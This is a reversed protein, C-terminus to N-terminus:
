VRVAKPNPTVAIKLSGGEPSRALNLASSIEDFPFIHTVFERWPYSDNLLIERTLSNLEISASYSGIIQKEAMGIQGGDVELTQGMRTHAFLVLTGGPRLALLSDNIVGESDTAAIVADPGLPTAVEQLKSVWKEGPGFVDRAGYRISREQRDPLPEVAYVQWSDRNILATLMLGVPGQGLIVLTGKSDPLSDICKLCTNLPEMLIAIEVPLGKPIEVVGGGNVVWPSVKVYEAWGGGAPSFGATTGTQKYGSCQSYLELECLRCKRCPVHHYLAVRKDLFSEAGRGVGVVRGAMEHGLIVPPEVLGLDIKKIDTPCLGCAEVRVLLEGPGIQPVSVTEVEVESGGRWVAALMEAPISAVKVLSKETPGTM